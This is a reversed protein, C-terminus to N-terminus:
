KGWSFVCLRQASEDTLADITAKCRQRCEKLYGLLEARTYVREPLPDDGNQEILTFPAPAFGRRAPRTCTSGSFRTIFLRVLVARAGTERGADAM